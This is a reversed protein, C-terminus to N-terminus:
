RPVLNLPEHIDVQLSWKQHVITCGENATQEATQLAANDGGPFSHPAGAHYTFPEHVPGCGGCMIHLFKLMM